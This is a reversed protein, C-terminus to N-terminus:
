EKAETSAQSGHVATHAICHETLILKIPLVSLDLQGVSLSPPVRPLNEPSRQVISRLFHELEKVVVLLRHSLNPCAIPKIKHYLVHMPVSNSAAM